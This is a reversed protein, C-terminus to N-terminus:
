DSVILLDDTYNVTFQRVEPGLILDMARSFSGVTTKLGFPLVQYTYSQGNFLFATYQTSEPSLPIQWYSARLDITSM